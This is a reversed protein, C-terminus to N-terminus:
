TLASESMKQVYKEPMECKVKKCINKNSTKFTLGGHVIRNITMYAAQLKSRLSETEGLYLPLGYDLISRLKSNVVLKRDALTMMNLYPKLKSHELGINSKM